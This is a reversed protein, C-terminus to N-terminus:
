AVPAPAIGALQLVDHSYFIRGTIREALPRILYAAASAMDDPSEQPLNTLDFFTRSGFTPVVLTPALANVDIGDDFVESALGTSFREVAAKCMGYITGGRSETASFPPTPHIAAKSSINVIWGRGRERMTPIVGQCLEVVARVQVDLMLSLRSARFDAAPEFTSVAANNVLVEIPGLEGVVRPVLQARDEAISLDCEFPVATGGAARIEDVADQPTAPYRGDSRAAVAVSFGESALKKAIARGIGGSSGTVLAVRVESM